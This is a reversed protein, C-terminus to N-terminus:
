APCYAFRGIVSGLPEPHISAAGHAPPFRGTIWRDLDAILLARARDGIDAGERDCPRRQAHRVALRHAGYLLPHGTRINGRCAQLLQYKPPLAAIPDMVM